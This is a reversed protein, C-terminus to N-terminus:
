ERRAMRRLRVALLIPILLAIGDFILMQTRMSGPRARFAFIIMDSINVGLAVIVYAWTVTVAGEHGRRWRIGAWILLVGLCTGMASSLLGWEVSLGMAEVGHSALDVINWLGDDFLIRLGNSTLPVLGTVVGILGILILIRGMWLHRRANM